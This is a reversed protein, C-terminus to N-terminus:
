SRPYLVGCLVGGVYVIVTGVILGLVNSDFNAALGIVIVGIACLLISLMAIRM